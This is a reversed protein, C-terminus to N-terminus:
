GISQERGEDFFTGTNNVAKGTGRGVFSSAHAHLKTTSDNLFMSTFNPSGDGNFDSFHSGESWVESVGYINTQGYFTSGIIHVNVSDIIKTNPATADEDKGSSLGIITFHTPIAANNNAQSICFTGYSGNNTNTRASTRALRERRRTLNLM